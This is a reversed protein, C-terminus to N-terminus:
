RSRQFGELQEYQNDKMKRSISSIWRRHTTIFIIGLLSLITNSLIPQNLWWTGLATIPFPSIITIITVILQIYNTNANKGTHTAQMSFTVKNYVAMQFLIRYAVGAAFLAYSLVTWFSIKGILAVPLFALLPILLLATYFYYKALLLNQISNRQMLLCEYYNGEYCMIRSLSSLGYVIFSYYVFGNIKVMDSEPDFATILSFIFIGFTNLFFILRLRKNRLIGWVEIKLYEGIQNFRDFFTLNISNKDHKVPAATYQEQLIRHELVNRNLLIMGILFLIMVAYIWVEGRIMANGIEAWRQLYSQPSPFFITIIAIFLYTLIPILWYWLGRATLVQTFQFFQGNILLLLYLGATYGIMASAGLEPILTKIGFPICIFLLNVNKFVILQRLILYDTYSHKPLPLLLYPRIHMLLRHDTTYRFIYDIFLFVPILAYIFRYGGLNDEIVLDALEYGIWVFYACLFIALVYYFYKAVNNAQWIKNRRGSLCFHKHLTQIAEWYTM